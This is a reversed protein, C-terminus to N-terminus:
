RSQPNPSHHGAPATTPARLSLAEAMDDEGIYDRGALDSVTRAVRLVRHCARASLHLKDAARELLAQAADAGELLAGLRAPSLRANSCGQRHHARGRADRVRAAVPPSETRPSQSRLTKFPVRGLNVSLDIRDLLPGSLRGQYRLVQDQSCRCLTDPDGLYGCPCPNMAAVLQFRAPFSVYANARAIHVRGTELPERLMELAHRSFEPLEDLFLVGHHARSIEGPRPRSGGGVLAAASAGHHPARFPRQSWHAISPAPGTVSRITAVELAEADTMEPVLGPLRAALMSKGSGPPGIMLLNHGGAAAVELARKAGHQGRVDALDPVMATDADFIRRPAVEVLPQKGSLHDVADSLTAVAHVRAGPALAAVDADRPGVIVSRGATAAAIAAPLVGAVSAVRGALTLEGFCETDDLLTSRLQGSAALIALAIALDFRGGSKPLDAPALNVVIRSVPFDYGSSALAGRVRDRSERVTTEALGVINFAPLGGALQVEVSVPPADLGREGRCRVRAYGM